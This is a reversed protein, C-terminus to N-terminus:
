ELATIRNENSRSRNDVTNLLVWKATSEAQLASISSQAASLASSLGLITEELEEIRSTDSAQEVGITQWEGRAFYQFTEDEERILTISSGPTQVYEYNTMPPQLPSGELFGGQIVEITASNVTRRDGAFVSVIITGIEAMFDNPIQAMDDVIPVHITDFGDKSFIAVKDMGDWNPAFAFRAFIYNQNGSPIPRRDQLFIELASVSFQIYVNNQM